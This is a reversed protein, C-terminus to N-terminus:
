NIREWCKACFAMDKLEGHDFSKPEGEIPWGCGDCCVHRVCLPELVFLRNLRDREDSDQKAQEARIRDGNACTKCRPEPVDNHYQREQVYSIRDDCGGCVAYLEELYTMEGNDPM